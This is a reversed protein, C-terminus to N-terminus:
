EFNFNGDLVNALDPIGHDNWVVRCLAQGGDVSILTHDYLVVTFYGNYLSDKALEVRGQVDSVVWVITSDQLELESRCEVDVSNDEFISGIRGSLFLDDSVHFICNEV